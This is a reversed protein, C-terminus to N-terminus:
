EVGQEGKVVRLYDFVKFVNHCATNGLDRSRTCALHRVRGFTDYVGRTM